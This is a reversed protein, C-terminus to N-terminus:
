TPALTWGVFSLFNPIGYTLPLSSTLTYSTATTNTYFVSKYWWWDFSLVAYANNMRGVAGRDVRGDVCELRWSRTAVASETKSYERMGVPATIRWCSRVFLSSIHDACPQQRASDLRVATAYTKGRKVSVAAAIWRWLSRCEPFLVCCAACVRMQRTQGSTYMRRTTRAKGYVCNNINSAARRLCRLSM